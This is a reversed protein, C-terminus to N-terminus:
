TCKLIDDSTQKVKSWDLSKNDPLPNVCIIIETELLNSIMTTQFM